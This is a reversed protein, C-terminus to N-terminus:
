AAGGTIAEADMGLQVARATAAELREADRDRLASAIHSRALSQAVCMAGYIPHQGIPFGGIGEVTGDLTVSYGHNIRLLFASPEQQRCSPCTRPQHMIASLADRRDSEGFLDPQTAIM